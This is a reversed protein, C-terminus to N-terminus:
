LDPAPTRRPFKARLSYPQVHKLHPHVVPLNEDHGLSQAHKLLKLRPSTDVRDKAHVLYYVPYRQNLLM